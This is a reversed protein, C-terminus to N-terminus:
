FHLPGFRQNLYAQKPLTDRLAEGIKGDMGTRVLGDRVIMSLWYEFPYPVIPSVSAFEVAESLGRLNLSVRRAHHANGLLNLRKIVPRHLVRSWASTRLNRIVCNRIGTIQLVQEVGHHHFCFRFHFASRYLSTGIGKSKGM